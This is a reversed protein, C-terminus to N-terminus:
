FYYEFTTPGLKIHLRCQGLNTLEEASVSTIIIPPGASTNMVMSLEIQHIHNYFRKSICSLVTGSDFLAM